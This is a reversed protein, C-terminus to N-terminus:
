LPYCVNEKIHYVSFWLPYPMQGLYDSDLIFLETKLKNNSITIKSYEIIKIYNEVSYVSILSNYCNNSDFRIYESFLLSCAECLIIHPASNYSIDVPGKITVAVKSVHIIGESGSQPIHAKHILSQGIIANLM